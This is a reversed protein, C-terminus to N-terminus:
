ANHQDALEAALNELLLFAEAYRAPPVLLRVLGHDADMTTLVALGDYGELLFKLYGIKGPSIRLYLEATEM